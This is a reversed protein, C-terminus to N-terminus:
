ASSELDWIKNTRPRGRSGNNGLSNINTTYVFSPKQIDQITEVGAILAFTAHYNWSPCAVKVDVHLICRSCDNGCAELMREEAIRTCLLTAGSFYYKPSRGSYTVSSHTEM